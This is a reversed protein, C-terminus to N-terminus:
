ANPCKYRPEGSGCHCGVDFCSETCYCGGMGCGPCAPGLTFHKWWNLLRKM